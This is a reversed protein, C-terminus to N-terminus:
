RPLKRLEEKALRIWQHNERRSFAPMRDYVLFMKRYQQNAEPIRGSRQLFEAFRYLSELSDLGEAAQRYIEGAEDTAGMRDLVRAYFLQTAPRPRARTLELVKEFLTRSEALAGARFCAEALREMVETEQAFQGRLCGRYRAAAQGPQGCRLYEDGLLRLNQFTPALEAQEELERLRRTPNVMTSLLSQAKRTTRGSLIPPLVEIVIYAIGGAVPLFILIYIWFQERGTKIVHIILLAQLLVPLALYYIM